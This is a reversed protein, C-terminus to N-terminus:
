IQLNNYYDQGLQLPFLELKRIQTKKMHGDDSEVDEPEGHLCAVM